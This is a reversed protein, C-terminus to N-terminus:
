QPHKTNDTIRKLVEKFNEYRVCKDPLEFLKPDPNEFQVDRSQTVAVLQKTFFKIQIPFNDMDTASWIQIKLEDENPPTYTLL